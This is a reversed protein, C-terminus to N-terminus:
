RGLDPSLFRYGYYVLKTEDDTYKTSFRYPNEKALEGTAVITEGFPSYEYHALISLESSLASLMESVNGNADFVPSLLCSDPSLIALLGGVGGAGSLSGSLDIGWVFM